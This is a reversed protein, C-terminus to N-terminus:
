SIPDNAVSDWWGLRRNRLPNAPGRKRCAAGVVSRSLSTPPLATDELRIHAVLAPAPSTTPLAVDCLKEGLIPIHLRRPGRCHRDRRPPAWPMPTTLLVTDHLKEGLVLVRMRHPGRCRSARRTPLGHRQRSPAYPTLTQNHTITAHPDQDMFQLPALLASVLVEEESGARRRLLVDGGKKHLHPATAHVPVVRPPPPSIPLALALPTLTPARTQTFFSPTHMSCNPHTATRALRSKARRRPPSFDRHPLFPCGVGSIMRSTSDNTVPCPNPSRARTLARPRPCSPTSASRLNKIPTTYIGCRELIALLFCFVEM